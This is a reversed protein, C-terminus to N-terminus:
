SSGYSYHHYSWGNGVNRNLNRLFRDSLSHFWFTIVSIFVFVFLFLSSSLSLFIPCGHVFFVSLFSFFSFQLKRKETNDLETFSLSLSFLVSRYPTTSPSSETRSTLRPMLHILDIVLFLFSSEITSFM